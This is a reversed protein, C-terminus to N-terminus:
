LFISFRNEQSHFWYNIIIGEIKSGFKSKNPSLIPSFQVSGLSSSAAFPAPNPVIMISGKWPKSRSLRTGSMSAMTWSLSSVM